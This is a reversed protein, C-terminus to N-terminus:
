RVINARDSEKLTGLKGRVTELSYGKGLWKEFLKSTSGKVLDSLKQSSLREEENPDDDDDTKHSRLFRKENGNGDGMAADLAHAQDPSAMTSVTVKEVNSAASGTALLTAATAALLLSTVRM